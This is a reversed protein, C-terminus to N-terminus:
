WPHPLARAVSAGSIRPAPLLRGGTPQWKSLRGLTPVALRSELDTTAQQERDQGYGDAHKTYAGVYFGSAPVLPGTPRGTAAAPLPAAAAPLLAATALLAVLLARGRFTSRAAAALRRAFLTSRHPSTRMPHGSRQPAGQLNRVRGAM